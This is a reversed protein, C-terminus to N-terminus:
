FPAQLLDAPIVISEGTELTVNFQGNSETYEFQQLSGYLDMLQQSIAQRVRDIEKEEILKDFQESADVVEEEQEVDEATGNSPLSNLVNIGRKEPADTIEFEDLEEPESEEVPEEQMSPKDCVEAVAAEDEAIQKIIEEQKVDTMDQEEEVFGVLTYGPVGNLETKRDVFYYDDGITVTEGVEPSMGLEMESIFFEGDQIDEVTTEVMEEEVVLDDSIDEDETATDPAPMQPIDFADQITRPREAVREIEVEDERTSANLQPINASDDKIAQDMERMEEHLAPAVPLKFAGVTTMPKESVREIEVEEEREGEIEAVRANYEEDTEVHATMTIEEENNNVGYLQESLEDPTLAIDEMKVTAKEQEVENIMDILNTQNPDVIVDDPKGPSGQALKQDFEIMDLQTMMHLHVLKQQEMWYKPHSKKLAVLIHNYRTWLSDEDTSYQYSPKDLEQKILSIQETNIVGLDVFLVGVLKSFDERSITINKMREKSNKLDDFYDFADEILTEITDVTETDASGTHKRTWSSSDSAIVSANNTKVYGGIACRFKLSKDYSNAFAFMLGLDPDENYQLQFVGTAVKAEDTARYKEGIINFGKDALKEKITNIVFEHSIVTYSKTAVPLEANVLYDRTVNDIRKPM